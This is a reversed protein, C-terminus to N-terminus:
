LSKPDELASSLTFNDTELGLITIELDTNVKRADILDSEVHGLHILTRKYATIMRGLDHKLEAPTYDHGSALKDNVDIFVSIPDPLM